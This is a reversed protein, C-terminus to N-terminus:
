RNQLRLYHTHQNQIVIGKLIDIDEEQIELRDMTDAMCNGIENNLSDEMGPIRAQNRLAEPRLESISQHLVSFMSLIANNDLETRCSKRLAYCQYVRKFSM